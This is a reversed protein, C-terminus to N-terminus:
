FDKLVSSIFLSMTTSGVGGKAKTLVIVKQKIIKMSQQITKTQDDVLNTFNNSPTVRENFSKRQDIKIPVKISNNTENNNLSITKKKPTNEVKKLQFKNSIETKNDICVKKKISAFGNQNKKELKNESKKGIFKNKRVKLKGLISKFNFNGKQRTEKKKIYEKELIGELEKLEIPYSLDRGMMLVKTNKKRARDIIGNLNSIKKSVVAIDIKEYELIFNVAFESSLFITNFRDDLEKLRSFTELDTDAIIVKLTVYENNM